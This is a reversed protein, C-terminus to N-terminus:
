IHILSLDTVMPEVLPPPFDDCTIVIDDPFDIFDPRDDDPGVWMSTEVTATNGCEDTATWVRHIRFGFDCLTGSTQSDEFTLIATGCNDTVTPVDFEVPGCFVDVEDVVNSFEPAENDELIITQTAIESNGCDDLAVWTRTVMQNCGTGVTVDESVLTVESCNDSVEPTGFEPNSSCDQTEDAPVFTFIPAIEDNVTITQSVSSSGGCTNEYSWTRVITFRNPCEGPIMEDSPSVALMNGDCNIAVMLDIPDPIETECSVSVDAPPMTELDIDGSVMITQSVSSANGCADAFSWTRIMTFMDPCDGPIVESTPMVPAIEGECNDIAIHAIAVPIEDGCGVAIDAPATAIPAEDDNVTIM